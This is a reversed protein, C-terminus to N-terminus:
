RPALDVLGRSTLPAASLLIFGWKGGTKVAAMGESVLNVDEYQLPVAITAGGNAVLRLFGRMPGIRVVAFGEQFTFAADYRPEVTLDGRKNIYGWKRNIQVPAVGNSFQGAMEFRDEFLHAGDARLYGWKSGEPKVAAYDESFRQVREYNESGSIQCFSAGHLCHFGFRDKGDRGKIGFITFNNSIESLYILESPDEDLDKLSTFAGSLNIYGWEGNKKVTAIGGEPATAFEFDFPLVLRGASGIYGWRNGSRVAAFGNKFGNVDDFQPEVILRGSSSIFGWQRSKLVAFRGLNGRRIQDYAPAVIWSGKRDVLGWQGQWKVPAVGEHFSGADEFRPAIALQQQAQSTAASTLAFNWFIFSRLIYRRRAKRRVPGFGADTSRTFAVALQSEVEDSEFDPSKILRRVWISLQRALM